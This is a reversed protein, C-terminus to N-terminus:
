FSSGKLLEDLDIETLPKTIYGDIFDYTKSLNLDRPDISSTLIHIQVKTRIVRPAAKLEELLEWGNMVPMNIDLLMIEPLDNPHESLSILADYAKLGNEIHVVQEAVGKSQILVEAVRSFIEDDDVLFLKKVGM